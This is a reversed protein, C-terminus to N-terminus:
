QVQYRCTGAWTLRVTSATKSPGRWWSHLTVHALCTVLLFLVFVYKSTARLVIESTRKNLAVYNRMQTRGHM